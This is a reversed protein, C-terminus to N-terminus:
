FKRFPEDNPLALQQVAYFELTPVHRMTVTMKSDLGYLVITLFLRINHRGWETPYPTTFVCM